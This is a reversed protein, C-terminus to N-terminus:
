KMDKRDDSTPRKLNLWKPTYTTINRQSKLKCRGSSTSCKIMHKNAMQTDETFQRNMDNLWKRVSNNEKLINQM